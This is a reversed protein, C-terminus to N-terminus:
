KNYKLIHKFIKRPNIASTVFVILIIITFSILSLAAAVFANFSFVRKKNSTNEYDSVINELGEAPLIFLTSPKNTSSVDDDENGSGEVVDEDDSIDKISADAEGSTESMDRRKKTTIIISSATSSSTHVDSVFNELDGDKDNGSGEVLDEDDSEVNSNSNYIEVIDKTKKLRKHSGKLNNMISSPTTVVPVISKSVTGTHFEVPPMIPTTASMRRRPKPPTWSFATPLLFITLLVSTRDM